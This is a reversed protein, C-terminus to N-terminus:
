RDLLNERVPKRLSSIADRRVKRPTQEGDIVIFRDPNQEILTDYNDKVRELMGRKEYKEEEDARELATDVSIDLFLTKNPEINWPSMVDGMWDRPNDLENELQVPQYALTSDTFRDSIVMEGSHLRPLIYEEIHHHRDSMFLFFDTFPHTDDRLAKRVVKGTWFESPEATTSAFYEEELEDILTSKGSGDIGEITIFFGSWSM